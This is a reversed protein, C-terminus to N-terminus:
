ETLKQNKSMKTLIEYFKDNSKDIMDPDDLTNELDNLDYKIEKKVEKEPEPEKKDFEKNVSLVNNFANKVEDNVGDNNVKEKLSEESFKSIKSHIRLESSKREMEEIDDADYKKMNRVVKSNSYKDDEIVIKMTDNNFIVDKFTQGDQAFRAKIIRINALNAQKQDPTKAVSMFFHAKQIRKISGGSQYAEV